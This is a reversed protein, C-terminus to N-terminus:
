DKMFQEIYKQASLPAIEPLCLNKLSCSHCSKNMHVKPTYGKQFLDNMEEFAKEIMQRLEKTFIVKIRRHIEGYFLEGFSINCCLMEELCIAQACLQMEDSYDQKPKGHKYEVPCPLWQGERGQLIIGNINQTFEVVDCIGVAKLRDSKVRMGRVILKDKRLESFGEDHVHEHMLSGQTTLLNECWQQEIHILAWQRRCFAFHQLESIQRYDEESIHNDISIERNM